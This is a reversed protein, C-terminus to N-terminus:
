ATYDELAQAKDLLALALTLKDHMGLAIEQHADIYTLTHTDTGFSQSDALLNLCVADVGKDIRAKQANAHANTADMEAKFAITRLNKKDISAIIDANEVLSLEWTSGLTSKKTKGASPHAVRFDSVAAAMFLYPTKPAHTHEHDHHVLSPAKALPAHITALKSTLAEQMSQASQVKQSCMDQPLTTPFQTSVFCVHAGRLYLAIALSSAMKGSSFNSLYRVEDIKEITGGGTVLVRRHEWFTQRLLERAVVYFLEMPDALAGDGTTKCALEKTQTDVLTYNALKLLKMSAQTIPNALMATNASPAIIKIRSYALSTQTLLNDAIGNALKNLTNATCPAIIFADAWKALAIHNADSYWNESKEDIVANGTLAELTLPTVFRAGSQTLIVRVTAGAKTLHRILEISKYASISGTIGLLVKKGALLDSPFM